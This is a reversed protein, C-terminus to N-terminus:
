NIKMITEGSDNKTIIKGYELSDDFEINRGQAFTLSEGAAENELVLYTKTSMVLTILLGEEQRCVSYALQRHMRRM